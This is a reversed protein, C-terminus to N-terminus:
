QKQATTDCGLFCLGRLNQASHLDNISDRELCIFTTDDYYFCNIRDLAEASLNIGSLLRTQNRSKLKFAYEINIVIPKCNNLPWKKSVIKYIVRERKAYIIYFNNISDIKYVKYLPKVVDIKPYASSIKSQINYILSLLIIFM